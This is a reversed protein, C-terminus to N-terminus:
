DKRPKPKEAKNLIKYLRDFTEQLTSIFMTLKSKDYCSVSSGLTKDLIRYGVGKVFIFFILLKQNM